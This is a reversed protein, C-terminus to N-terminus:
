PSDRDCSGIRIWIGYDCRLLAEGSCVRAGQPFSRNNFYCVPEGPTELKLVEFDEDQEELIPSTRLEPDPAGVQPGPIHATM